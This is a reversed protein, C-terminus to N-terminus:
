SFISWKPWYGPKPIDYVNNDLQQSIYKMISDTISKKWIHIWISLLLDYSLKHNVDFKEQFQEVSFPNDM